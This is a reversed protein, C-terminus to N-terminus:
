NHSIFHFILPKMTHHSLVILKSFKFGQERLWEFANLNKCITINDISNLSGSNGLNANHPRLHFILPEVVILKKTLNVLSTSVTYKVKKLM